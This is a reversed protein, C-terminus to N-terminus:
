ELKKGACKGKWLSHDGVQPWTEQVGGGGPNILCPPCDVKSMPYLALSKRPPLNAAVKSM